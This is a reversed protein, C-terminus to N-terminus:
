SDGITLGFGYPFLPDYLADGYNMPLQNVSRFWTRSLKGHFDHDGFMTDTIGEGETGPLWAAIFADMLPLYPELVLPRGSILVVVCEVAKCVGKITQLGEEPITLNKNDGGSEAYPLEGVVVIAYSFGEEWVSLNQVNRRYVVKTSPSVSSRIASLITTGTTINGSSGGRTITWGGCQNGIDDAHSGTVLIKPASKDLPLLPKQPSKGNKLLM